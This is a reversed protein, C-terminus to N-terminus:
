VFYNLIFWRLFLHEGMEKIRRLAGGNMARDFEEIVETLDREMEEMTRPDVLGAVTRAAIM